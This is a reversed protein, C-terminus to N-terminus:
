VNVFGGDIVINQGTLYTNLTSSLFVVVRGIEAPDALRRAPIQSKLENQEAESLNQQTLDTLVFGPSVSNVMINFEALETSAAVTLGHLGFKTASYAARKPRSIVGWISAINVIRGYGARRMVPATARLLMFPADLNVATLADWDELRSEEIHNIRNIGANNVLVDIKNYSGLEQAFAETALRDTFDVQRWTVNAIPRERQLREIGAAQVGTATVTAGLAALDEVIQRGIGRTGGTVIAHQGHFDLKM